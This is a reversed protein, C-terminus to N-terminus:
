RGGRTSCELLAARCDGLLDLAADARTWATDCTIPRDVACICGSGPYNVGTLRIRGVPAMGDRACVDACEKLKPEDPVEDRQACGVLALCLFVLARFAAPTV